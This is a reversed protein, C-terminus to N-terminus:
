IYLINELHSQLLLDRPVQASMIVCHESLEEEKVEMGAGSGDSDGKEDSEPKWPYVQPCYIYLLRLLVAKLVYM